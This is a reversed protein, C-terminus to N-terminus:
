SDSDHAGTVGDVLQMREEATLATSISQVVIADSREVGVDNTTSM